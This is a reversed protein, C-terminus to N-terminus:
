SLYSFITIIAGILFFTTLFYFLCRPVLYDKWIGIDKLSLSENKSIIKYEKYSVIIITALTLITTICYIIGNNMIEWFEPIYLRQSFLLLMGIIVFRWVYSRRKFWRDEKEDIEEQSLGFLDVDRKHIEQIIEMDTKGEFYDLHKISKIKVKNTEDFNVLKTQLITMLPDGEKWTKYQKETIEYKNLKNLYDYFCIYYHHHGKDTEIKKETIRASYNIEPNKFITNDLISLNTCHIGNTIIWIAFACGIYFLLTEADSLIKSFITTNFALFIALVVLLINGVISPFNSFLRRNEFAGFTSPVATIPILIMTLYTGYKRGLSYIFITFLIVIVVTMIKSYKEIKVKNNLCIEQYEEFVDAQYQKEKNQTQGELREM